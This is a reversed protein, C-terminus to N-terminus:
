AGGGGGAQLRFDAAPCWMSLKGTSAGRVVVFSHLLTDGLKKGVEVVTGATDGGTREVIDEDTWTVAAGEALSAVHQAYSVGLAARAVLEITAEVRERVAAGAEYPADEGCQVALSLADAGQNNVARPDAGAALLSRAAALNFKQAAFSLMGSGSAPIRSNPDACLAPRQAAPLPTDDAALGLLERVRPASKARIANLLQTDLQAQSPAPPSLLFARRAEPTAGPVHKLLDHEANYDGDVFEGPLDFKSRELMAGAYDIGGYGQLCKLFSDLDEFHLWEIKIQGIDLDRTSLDAVTGSILGPLAEKETQTIAGGSLSVAFVTRTRPAVTLFGGRDGAAGIDVKGALPESRLAVASLASRVRGMWYRFWQTTEIVQQQTWGHAPDVDRDPVQAACDQAAASGKFDYAGICDPFLYGQLRELGSMVPVSYEGTAADPPGGREPTSVIVLTAHLARMLKALAHGYARSCVPLEVAAAPPVGEDTVAQKLKKLM